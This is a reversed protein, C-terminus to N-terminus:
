GAEGNYRNMATTVGEALWVEAADAARDLAPLFRELQEPSFRGLVYDSQPVRGRDDIGVRLRAYGKTGLKQEIDKLGNHGGAGGEPRVRIAGCPLALDDVVVLVDAPELKYFNMVEMVSRGSLNMYGMPKLLGVKSSGMRGDVFMGGFRMKGGMLGHREALKDVVMFGANHRTKAYEPGPNGLGVIVRVVDSGFCFIVGIAGYAM